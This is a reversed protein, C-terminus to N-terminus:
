FTDINDYRKFDLEGGDKYVRLEKDDKLDIHLTGWKFWIDKVDKFTKNNEKLINDVEEKEFDMYVNFGLTVNNGQKFLNYIETTM